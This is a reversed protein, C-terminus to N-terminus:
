SEIVVSVLLDPTADLFYRCLRAITVAADAAEEQNGVRWNSQSSIGLWSLLSLYQNIPLGALSELTHSYSCDGFRGAADVYTVVRWAGSPTVYRWETPRGLSEPVGLFQLESKLRTIVTKRLARDHSTPARHDVSSVRTEDAWRLLRSEEETITEDLHACADKHFRKTMARALHIRRDVDLLRFLEITKSAANGRVSRLLPFGQQLERDWEELAWRFLRVALERRAAEADM